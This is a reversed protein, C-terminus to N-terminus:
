KERRMCPPLAFCCDSSFKNIQFHFKNKYQSTIFLSPHIRKKITEDPLKQRHFIVDGSPPLTGRRSCRLCNLNWILLDTEHGSESKALKGCRRRWYGNGKEQEMDEEGGFGTKM